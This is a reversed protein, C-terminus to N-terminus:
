GNAHTTFLNPPPQRHVDCWHELDKALQLVDSRLDPSVDIMLAMCEWQRLFTAILGIMTLLTNAAALRAIAPENLPQPASTKVAGMARRFDFIM